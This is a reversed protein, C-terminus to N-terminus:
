LNPVWREWDDLVRITFYRDQEGWIVLTPQTIPQTLWRPQRWLDGLNARYYNIGATLAGPKSLADKYLAIDHATFANSKVSDRRLGWDLLGFNGTKIVLEPLYPLQFFFIYWSKWLQTFTQLERIFAAPHPANLIVLRQVLDPYASAVKWAIGGGWDHGVVTTQTSGIKRILGAVDEALLDIRYQDKGRPKDSTNYGRLDPAVAHFGAEALAALQFRWSYWFEPFGHLLVVLPGAGAEVYHFRLGNVITERHAFDALVM